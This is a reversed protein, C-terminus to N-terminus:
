AFRDAREHVDGWELAAQWEAAMDLGGREKENEGPAVGHGDYQQIINGFGLRTFDDRFKAVIGKATDKGQRGLYMVLQRSRRGFNSNEYLELTSFVNGNALNYRCRRVHDHPDETECPQICWACFHLGCNGCTIKFCAEFDLFPMRCRPCLNCLSEKTRVKGVCPLIVTFIHQSAEAIKREQEDMKRLREAEVRILEANEIAHKMRLQECALEKQAESHTKFTDSKTAHVAITMESFPTSRCRIREKTETGDPRRHTAFRPEEESFMQCCIRGRRKMRDKIDGQSQKRVMDDFCSDCYFHPAAASCEVGKSLPVEDWCICCQRIMAPGSSFFPCQLAELATMRKSPDAHLLSRFIRKQEEDFAPEKSVDSPSRLLRGTLLECAIVGFSYMDSKKTNTGHAHSHPDIYGVTGVMRRTTATSLTTTFGQKEVKCTEFDALVAHETAEKNPEAKTDSAATMMPPGILINEPKLDRHIVGSLHLTSLGELVGRLMRACRGAWAEQQGTTGESGKSEQEVHKRERKAWERLTCRYRPLEMKWSGDDSRCIGQLKVINPHAVSTIVHVARRFRRLSKGGSADFKKLVCRIMRSSGVKEEQRLMASVSEHMLPKATDELYCDEEFIPVSEAATGCLPDLEVFFELSREPMFRCMRYMQTRLRRAESGSRYKRLRESLQKGREEHTEAAEFDFTALAQREAEHAIALKEKLGKKNQLFVVFEKRVTGDERKKREEFFESISRRLRELNRSARETSQVLAGKMSQLRQVLATINDKLRKAECEVNREEIQLGKELDATSFEMNALADDKEKSVELLSNTVAEASAVSNNSEGVQQQTKGEGRDRKNLISMAETFLDQEKRVVRFFEEQASEWARCRRADADDIPGQMLGSHKTDVKSHQDKVKQKGDVSSFHCLEDLDKVFAEVKSKVSALSEKAKQLAQEKTHTFCEDRQKCAKSLQKFLDHRRRRAPSTAVPKEQVSSIHKRAQSVALLVKDVCAAQSRELGNITKEESKIAVKLDNALRALNELRCTLKHLNEIEQKAKAMSIQKSHVALAALLV